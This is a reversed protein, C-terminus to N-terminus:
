DHRLARIPDMTAAKYAPYLGSCLGVGSAMTLSLLISWVTVITKWEAIYSILLSLGIGLTIGLIAGTLTLLLTELLFQTMIHRRNAGVARRIGIERTRESVTALMINMIGIGGVLLSIAAISGLVWNFTQQTRHAQNLLEQPIIIQYDEYGAHMRKLIKKVLRAAADMHKPQNIQLLIESYQDKKLNLASRPLAKETGLPIFVVKDLNRVTMVGNKSAKWHTPKLVGAVEYRVNEIRISGGVHGDKGLSKAVEYGLICVQQRRQSDLDCLFRGEALQLDKIEGFARSTAIIEPSIPMLTGTLSAEVIRIPTAEYALYSVNNQLAEVDEWRLGKSRKEAAQMQQEESQAHQRIIISNMGLQEIQELTEQKAGEGISLMAVVAAVGFLVGLTSLFTRLRHMLLSRFCKQIENRIRM